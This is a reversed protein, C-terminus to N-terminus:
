ESQYADVPETRETDSAKDFSEATGSGDPVCVPLCEHVCTHGSMQAGFEDFLAGV